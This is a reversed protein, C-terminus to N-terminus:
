RALADLRAALADRKALRAFDAAALGQDNRAKPDAGGALLLDVHAESGYRAAMMLPTSRNPSVADVAAGRELLLRSVAPEPGTAAYHLPAWGPKNVQAGRDLLRRVWDTQGRLSAMMLASEDSGNLADIDLGPADLLAKAVNEAGGRLALYLATQGKPDRSNPDFGRQILGRITTADDAEAAQFFTEYSGAFAPSLGILVILYIAKTFHNVLKM